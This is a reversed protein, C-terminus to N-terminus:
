RRRLMKCAVFAAVACAGAALPRDPRGGLAIGGVFLSIWLARGGRHLVYVSLEALLALAAFWM